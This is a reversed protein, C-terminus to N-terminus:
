QGHEASLTSHQVPSDLNCQADSLAFGAVYRAVLFGCALVTAMFKHPPQKKRGKRGTRKEM